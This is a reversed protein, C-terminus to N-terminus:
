SFYPSQKLLESYDPSIRLEGKLYDWTSDGAYMIDTTDHLYHGNLGSNKVTSPVFGMSHIIEHIFAYDIYNYFQPHEWYCTYTYADRLPMVIANDKGYAEPPYSSGCTPFKGIYFIINITRNTLPNIQVNLIRNVEDRIKERTFVGNELEKETKELNIHIIQSQINIKKGLHTQFYKKMKEVM